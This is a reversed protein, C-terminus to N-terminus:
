LLHLCELLDSALVHIVGAEAQDISISMVIVDDLWGHNGALTVKSQDTNTTAATAAATTTATATATSIVAPLSSLPLRFHAHDWALSTVRVFGATREDVGAFRLPGIRGILEAQGDNENGLNTATTNRVVLYSNTYRGTSVHVIHIAVTNHATPTCARDCFTVSLENTAHEIVSASTVHSDDIALKQIGVNADASAYWSPVLEDQPEFSSPWALKTLEKYKVPIDDLELKDSIDPIAARLDIVYRPLDTDNVTTSLSSSKVLLVPSGDPSIFVKPDVFKSNEDSIARPLAPLPKPQKCRLTRRGSRAHLRWQMECYELGSKNKDKNNNNNNNNNINKAITTSIATSQSLALYPALYGQRLPLLSPKIGMATSTDLYTLAGAPSMVSQLLTDDHPSQQRACNRLLAHTITSGSTEQHDQNDNDGLGTRDWAVTVVVTGVKVVGLRICATIAWFAIICLCLILRILGRRRHHWSLMRPKREKYEHEHEHDRDHDRELDTDDLYEYNM